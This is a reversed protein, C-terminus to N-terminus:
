TTEEREIVLLMHLAAANNEDNAFAFDLITAGACPRMGHWGKTAWPVWWPAGLMFAWRQVTCGYPHRPETNCEGRRVLAKRPLDGTEVQRILEDLIERRTM